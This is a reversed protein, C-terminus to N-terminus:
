FKNNVTMNSWLGLQSWGKATLALFFMTDNPCFSLNTSSSDNLQFIKGVIGKDLDCPKIKTEVETSNAKPTADTQTDSCTARGIAPKQITVIATTPPQQLNFQEM